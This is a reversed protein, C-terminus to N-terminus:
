EFTAYIPPKGDDPVPHTRKCRKTTTTDRERQHDNKRLTGNQLHYEMDAKLEDYAKKTTHDM